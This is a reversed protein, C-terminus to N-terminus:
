RSSHVGAIWGTSWAWQLNFGGCVGDVNLLEGCFYLGQCCKSEMTNVDVEGLVVGGQTVQAFKFDRRKEVTFPYEKLYGIMTQFQEQSIREMKEEPKVGFQKLLVMVIKEPLIGSLARSIETETRNEKLHDFSENVFKEFSSSDYEPFFDLHIQEGDKLLHSLNFIPIGSLGYETIQLEGQEERSDKTSIKAQIRVGAAKNLLSKGILATLAPKLDEIKHGFNRAIEYGSLGQIDPNMGGTAVILRDCYLPIGVDVVFQGNEKKVSHIENNTKIKVGLQRAYDALGNTVSTAQNSKPYRGQYNKEIYSPIGIKEFFAITEEPSFRQLVQQIYECDGYYYQELSPSMMLKQNTFNCKGNGTVSLKKGVKNQQEIVTVLANNKAAQIAAFLGSAGAGIVIVKM